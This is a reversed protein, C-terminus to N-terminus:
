LLAMRYPMPIRIDTRGRHAAIRQRSRAGQGALRAELGAYDSFEQWADVAQQRRVGFAEVARWASEVGQEEGAHWSWPSGPAHDIVVVDPGLRRAHALARQPEPIQHLCFEFLVVDATGDVDLVGATVVTFRDSLGRERLREELRRIAAADPDVAIVQRAPRAYEVLQGGGAGVEIVTRDRFDYFASLQTVIRQSDTAVNLARGM